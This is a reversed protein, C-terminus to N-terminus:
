DALVVGNGEILVLITTRFEDLNRGTLDRMKSRVTLRYFPVSKRMTYGEFKYETLPLCDQHPADLRQRKVLADTIQIQVAKPILEDRQKATLVTGSTPSSLGAHVSLANMMGDWDADSIKVLKLGYRFHDKEKYKITDTWKVLGTVPVPKEDVLVVISVEHAEPPIPQQTLLCLGGGGIDLGVAPFRMDATPWYVAQFPKARRPYRRRDEAAAVKTVTQPAPASASKSVRKVNPPGPM